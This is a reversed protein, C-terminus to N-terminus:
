RHLWAVVEEIGMTAEEGVMEITPFGNKEILVKDAVTEPPLPKKDSDSFLAIGGVVLFVPIFIFLLIKITKKM